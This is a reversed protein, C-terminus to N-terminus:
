DVFECRNLFLVHWIMSLKKNVELETIDGTYYSIKEPLVANKSSDINNGPVLDVKPTIKAGLKIAYERWTTIDELAVYEKYSSRRVELDMSLYKQKEIEWKAMTPKLTGNITSFFLPNYIPKRLWFIQCVASKLALM